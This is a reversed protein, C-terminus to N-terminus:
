DDFAARESLAQNFALLQFETDLFFILVDARLHMQDGVDVVGIQQVLHEVTVDDIVRGRLLHEAAGLLGEGDLAAKM